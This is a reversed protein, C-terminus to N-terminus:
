GVAGGGVSVWDLWSAGFDERLRLSVVEGGGLGGAAWYFSSMPHVTIAVRIM